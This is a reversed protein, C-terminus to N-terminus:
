IRGAIAGHFVLLSFTTLTLGIWHNSVAVEPACFMKFVTRTSLRKHQHIYCTIAPVSLLACVDISIVPCIFLADSLLAYFVSLLACDYSLIQYCPMFSEYCSVTMSLADSLLACDYLSCRIAPCLLSIAHALSLVRFLFLFCSHFPVSVFHFLTTLVFFFFDM